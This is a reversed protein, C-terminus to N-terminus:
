KNKFTIFVFKSTYNIRFKGSKPINRNTNNSKLDNPVRFGAKQIPARPPEAQIRNKLYVL